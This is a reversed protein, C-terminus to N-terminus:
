NIGQVALQLDFITDAFVVVGQGIALPVVVGPDKSFGGLVSVTVINKILTSIDKPEFSGQGIDKITVIAQIVAQFADMLAGSVRLGEKIEIMVSSALGGAFWISSKGASALDFLNLTDDKENHYHLSAILVALKGASFIRSIVPPLGGSGDSLALTAAPTTLVGFGGTISKLLPFLYEDIKDEGDVLAANEYPLPKNNITYWWYAPVAMGMIVMSGYSVDKIKFLKQFFGLVGSFKLQTTVLNELQDLIEDLLEAAIQVVDNLLELISLALNRLDDLIEQTMDSGQNVFGMIVDGQFQMFTEFEVMIGSMITDVFEQLKDFTPSLNDTGLASLIKNLLWMLKEIIPNSFPNIGSNNAKPPTGSPLPFFKNIADELTTIMQGVNKAETDIWNKVFTIGNTMEKVLFGDLYDYMKKIAALDLLEKLFDWIKKVESVIATVVKKIAECVAEATNVVLKAVKEVGAEVYHIVTSVLKEIGHEIDKVVTTVVSKLKDLIGDVPSASFAKFEEWSVPTAKEEIAAILQQAEEATNIDYTYSNNAEDYTLNWHPDPMESAVYMRNVQIAMNDHSLGNVVISSFNMTAKQVANLAADPFGNDIGFTSRNNVFFNDDLNALKEHLTQDAHMVVQQNAPMTDTRILTPPVGVDDVAQQLVVIQRMSNPAVEYVTVGNVTNETPKVNFKVVEPPTEFQFYVKQVKSDHFTYTTRFYHDDTEDDQSYANLMTIGVSPGDVTKGAYFSVLEANATPDSTVAGKADPDYDQKSYPHITTNPGPYFSKGAAQQPSFIALNSMENYFLWFKANPTAVEPTNYVIVEGQYMQLPVKADANVYRGSYTVAGENINHSGDSSVFGAAYSYRTILHYSNGDGSLEDSVYAWYFDFSTKSEPSSVRFLTGPQAAPLTAQGANQNAIIKTAKGQNDYQWVDALYDGPFSIQNPDANTQTNSKLMDKTLTLTYDSGDSTYSALIIDTDLGFSVKLQEGKFIKLNCNKRGQLANLAQFGSGTNKSILVELILPNQITITAM